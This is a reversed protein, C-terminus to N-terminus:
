SAPWNAPNPTWDDDNPFELLTSALIGLDLGLVSKAAAAGGDQHTASKAFRSFDDWQKALQEVIIRALEYSLQNSDTQFFSEGSWFQQIREANWYRVHKQHMERPTHLRHKAGTLRIETNVAIGEDLWRPLSRGTLALHTMEHAIVPEIAPLDDRVAVFHPCGDDIFMGGSLAFEGEDPYCISVYHYYDEESDFILLILKDDGPFEALDKLVTTIRRRTTAVFDAMAKVVRPEMSSLIFSQEAEHLHAFPGMTDRLHLLWARRGQEIAANEQARDPTDHAWASLSPWSMIPFGNPASLHAVVDFDGAGKATILDPAPSEDVEWDQPLQQTEGDSPELRPRVRENAILAGFFPIFWISMFLVAKRVGLDGGYRSVRRTVLINLGILVVVSAIGKIM